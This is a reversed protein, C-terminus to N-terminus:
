YVREKPVYRGLTVPKYALRYGGDDTRFYFTHKLWEEDNRNQYDDRAHGGRSEPRAKASVATVEALELLCGLEWAELLDTNFQQGKDDIQINRNYLEILERIDSVATSMTEETRFVGVNATMSKQMKSRLLDAPKVGGSGNRIREFEAMVEGAPDDPLPLLDAQNCYEAM